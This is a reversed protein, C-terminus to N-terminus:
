SYRFCRPRAMCRACKECIIRLVTFCLRESGQWETLFFSTAKDWQQYHTQVHIQSVLLLFALGRQNFYSMTTYHHIYPWPLHSISCRGGGVSLASFLLSFVRFLPCILLNSQGKNLTCWSQWRSGLVVEFGVDEDLNVFELCTTVDQNLFSVTVPLEAHLTTNDVTHLTARKRHLWIAASVPKSVLLLSM